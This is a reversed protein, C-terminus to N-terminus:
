GGSQTFYIPNLYIGSKLLELHLHPGTSDGTSGVLAIIDGQKVEQGVTAILESCHAYKTTIGDSGEIVIYNGFSDDWSATTVIGTNAAYIETGLSAAIDLGKHWQKAGTIPSIRYGFYSTVNSQWSFDFPSGVIQRNGGSYLLMEYNGRQEDTMLEAVVESFTKSEATQQEFIQNLAEQINEYTFDSYVATLYAALEFPNHTFHISSSIEYDTELETYYLEAQTLDKEDALYTGGFVTSFGAGAMGGFASCMSAIFFIVLLIIILIVVAVPHRKVANVVVKTTKTTIDGTKKVTESAKKTEKAAKAYQQKIKRKQMYRSFANSQLKPNEAVAKQYNLNVSKQAAARELKAVKRYPATKRYRLVSRVGNEALMETKHAAETGVNEREVQYIKRHWFMLATNGALKIPRLPLAGKIYESQPIVESEFYLKRKATSSKEDFVRESRLKQKAPLKSKAKELKKVSKDTEREAKVLKRPKPNEPATEDKAFKLKSLKNTKLPSEPKDLTKQPIVPEASGADQPKEATVPIGPESSQPHQESIETEAFEQPMDFKIESKESKDVSEVPLTTSESKESSKSIVEDQKIKLRVSKNFKLLPESNNIQPNPPATDIKNEPIEVTDDTDANINITTKNDQAAQQLDTEPNEYGTLNNHQESNIMEPESQNQRYIANKRSKVKSKSMNGLQSYTKRESLEGRLDFEAERKSIRKDEGTATNREILGNRSMKQTIKSRAKLKRLSM